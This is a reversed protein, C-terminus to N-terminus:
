YLIKLTEWQILVNGAAHIDVLEVPNKKEKFLFCRKQNFMSLPILLAPDSKM